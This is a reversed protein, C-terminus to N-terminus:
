ASDDILWRVVHVFELLAPNRCLDVILRSILRPLTAFVAILAIWQLMISDKQSHERSAKFSFKIGGADILENTFEFPGHWAVRTGACWGDIAINILAQQVYAINIQRHLEFSAPVLTMVAM